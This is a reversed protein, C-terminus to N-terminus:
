RTHQLQRYHNEVLEIVQFLAQYHEKVVQENQDNKLLAEFEKTAQKLQPVGCYCCAGHLRHLQNKLDTYDKNAYSQQISQKTAPLEKMFAQLIEQAVHEKGAALEVCLDWDIM